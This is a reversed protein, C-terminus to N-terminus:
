LLNRSGSIRITTGLNASKTITTVPHGCGLRTWTKKWMDRSGGEKGAGLAAKTEVARTEEEKEGAEMLAYLRLEKFM